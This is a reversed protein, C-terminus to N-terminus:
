RRRRALRQSSDGEETAKTHVVITGFGRAGEGDDNWTVEPDPSAEISDIMSSLDTPPVTGFNSASTLPQGTLRPVQGLGPTSAYVGIAGELLHWVVSTWNGPGRSQEDAAAKRSGFARGGLDLPMAAVEDGLSSQPHLPRNAMAIRAVSNSPSPSDADIILYQAGRTRARPSVEHTPNAQKKKGFTFAPWSRYFALQVLDNPASLSHTETKAQLLLARRAVSGDPSSHFHAVLLDGLECTGTGDCATVYPKQHCFVGATSVGVGSGRLLARWGADIIPTGHAVIGAVMEPEHPERGAHEEVENWAWVLGHYVADNVVEALEDDYRRFVPDSCSM